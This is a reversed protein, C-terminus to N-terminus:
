NGMEYYELVPPDKMLQGIIIRKLKTKKQMALLNGIQKGTEFGGATDAQNLFILRVADEHTDKFIGQNHILVNCVAAATIKQGAALGTSIFFAGPPSDM